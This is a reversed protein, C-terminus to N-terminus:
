NEFIKLNRMSYETAFDVFIAIFLSSGIINYLTGVFFELNTKPIVNGFGAGM